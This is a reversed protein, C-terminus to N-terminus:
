RESRKAIGALVAQASATYAATPNAKLARRLCAAAADLRKAGFYSMGLHYQYVPNDPAMRVCSSSEAVALEYLGSKYFAWALTDAAVPSNPLQRKVQQALSLAANLDGGHELYLYALNNKAQASSPDAAVAKELMARAEDWRTETGYLHALALYTAAKQPYSGIEMKLEAEAQADLRKAMDIEALLSHADPTQADLALAQRASEESSQFDKSNFYALGLLFHLGANRPYQSALASIRGVSEKAKDDTADLSVLMELAPLLVPDRELATEILQRARQLNGRGLEARAGVVEALPLNPNTEALRDAEDYSGNDADMEAIAANAGLMGPSLQHARAFSAQAAGVLGRSKQAMGLFFYSAASHPSAKVANQLVSEAEAYRRQNILIRGKLLLGNPDNPHAALLNRTLDSAEQFRNAELLAEALNAIVWTDKPKSSSLSQLEAVAKERQGASLYFAAVARYFRPDDPGAKKLKIRIKEAAALNGEAAYSDALWLRPTPDRAALNSAAQMEAEAQAFKRQSLYFRGLNVRATASQSNAAAAEKLAREANQFDGSSMYVAALQAYTELRHPDLSVALQYEKIASASDGTRASREGLIAHAVANRPDTQLVKAAAGAAEDYKKGAIFLAALQLQARADRPDLTVTERLEKYAGAVSRLRLYVEALQYHAQVLRPNVQIANRYEILAENYRGQKFYKDGGALYASASRSCGTVVILALM